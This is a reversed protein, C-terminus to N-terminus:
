PLRGSSLCLCVSVHSAWLFLSVSVRYLSLFGSLFASFTMFLRFVSVKSAFLCLCSFASAALCLNSFGISQFVCVSLSKYFTVYRCLCVYAFSLSMLLRFVSLCLCASAYSPSLGVSVSMFLCLCSFAVSRCVCVSLSMLIHCISINGRSSSPPLLFLNPQLIQTSTKYVSYIISTLYLSCLLPSAINDLVALFKNLNNNAKKFLKVKKDSRCPNLFLKIIIFKSSLNLIYFHPM